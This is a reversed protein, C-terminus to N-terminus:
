LMSNKKIRDIEFNNFSLKEMCSCAQRELASVSEELESLDLKAFDSAKMKEIESDLVEFSINIMKLRLFILEYLTKVKCLQTKLKTKQATEEHLFDCFHAIKRLKVYNEVLLLKIKGRRM